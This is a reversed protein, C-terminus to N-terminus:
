DEDFTWERQGDPDNCLWRTCPGGQFPSMIETAVQLHGVLKTTITIFLYVIFSKSPFM